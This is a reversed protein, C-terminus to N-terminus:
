NYAPEALYFMLFIVLGCMLYGGLTIALDMKNPLDAQNEQDMM